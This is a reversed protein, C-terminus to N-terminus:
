RHLLLIIYLAYAGLFLLGEVRNIKGRAYTFLMVSSILMAWMALRTITTDLTLPSVLTATGMVGLLNFINSGLISGVIMQPQRHHAAVAATFIEPLTTGVAVVTLGIASQSMGWIAALQTAADVMLSAGLTLGVLGAAAMATAALPHALPGKTAIHEDPKPPLVYRKKEHQYTLFTYLVLVALAGAGAARPLHPSYLMLGVAAATIIVLFLGHRNMTAAEVRFPRILSCTGIVLLINLINAGMVNGVSLPAVDRTLSQVMTMFEPLSTGWAVLTLGIVLTSLGTRYALTSAGRVLGEAGLSLFIIGGLLSLLLFIMCHM